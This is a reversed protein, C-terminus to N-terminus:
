FEQDGLHSVRNNTKYNLYRSFQISGENEGLTECSTDGKEGAKLSREEKQNKSTLWKGTKEYFNISSESPLEIEVGIKERKM